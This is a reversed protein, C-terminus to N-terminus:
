NQRVGSVILDDSLPSFCQLEDSMLRDVLLGVLQKMECISCIANGSIRM